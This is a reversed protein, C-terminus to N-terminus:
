PAQRVVKFTAMMGHDEHDLMHCHVMFPGTHDTFRAAVVVQEGPDLKWTDELGREWPPPSEGNRSVTRWQEQHLHVYHTMDSTNELLWKETTDLTVQHDVRADDYALGNIAWFTGTEEDGELSFTWSKAIEDPAEVLEPSPLNRPIRSNDPAKDRVRFQMLAGLRTGTGTGGDTRETTQLVVEKGLQGHFDVVVDVRQSPGLLINEREVPHPLLGNGTGIQTFARGSSLSLNYSSFASSNLLRLRYRVAATRVFPRLTGNVLIRTGVSIDNPPAHPGTFAMGAHEGHGGHDGHAMTPQHLETLQNRKTFSRDSIMLPLDRKGRPLDLEDQEPDDVIFMGQLGMWNNRTTHDMRHDHYWFFSGPVPRGSERLDYRYTRSEGKPVLFSTPQGDFKAAQHGGHLHTSMAGARRPLHNVVTVRTSHGADRRITPGPWTGGYTWATTRRGRPLMRVRSKRMELTIKDGRLNKPVVLPTRFTAEEGGTGGDGGTVTLTGRMNPHLTCYFEYSAAALGDVRLTRTAGAPISVDFLPM